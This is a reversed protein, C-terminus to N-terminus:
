KKGHFICERFSVYGRFHHNGIPIEKELPDIKLPWSNTEPLTHCSGSRRTGLHLQFETFTITGVHLHVECLKVLHDFGHHKPPHFCRPGLYSAMGLVTFPPVGFHITFIISFGILISSKPTCRNESVGM